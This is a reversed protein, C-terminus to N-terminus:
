HAMYEQSFRNTRAVDITVSILLFAPMMQRGRKTHRRRGKEHIQVHSGM